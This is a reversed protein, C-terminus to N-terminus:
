AADEVKRGHRLLQDVLKIQLTQNREEARLRSYVREFLALDQHARCEEHHHPLPRGCLHCINM